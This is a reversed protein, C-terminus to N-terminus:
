ASMVLYNFIQNLIHESVKTLSYLFKQFVQKDSNYIGLKSKLNHTTKIKLM